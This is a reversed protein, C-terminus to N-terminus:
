KDWILECDQGYFDTDVFLGAVAIVKGQDLLIPTRQRLWSPVGYEQFLKKLKRSGVRGYPHASLGQPNFVVEVSIPLKQRSLTMKAKLDSVEINQIALTGLGDPLRQQESTLWTSSWHSVDNSKNIYFLKEKFRRVQGESLCLKPNADQQALGVQQWLVNLQSESPLTAGQKQLWLRLLFNRQEQSEAFLPELKLGGQKDLLQSLKPELLEV